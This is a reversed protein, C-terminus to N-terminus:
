KQYIQWICIILIIWILTVGARHWKKIYKKRRDACFVSTEFHKTNFWLCILLIIIFFANNYCVLWLQSMKYFHYISKWFCKLASRMKIKEKIMVILIFWYYDSTYMVKYAHWEEKVLDFFSVAQAAAFLAFFVVLLKNM